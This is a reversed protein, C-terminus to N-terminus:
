IFKVRPHIVFFLFWEEIAILSIGDLYRKSTNSANRVAQLSCLIICGIAIAGGVDTMGVAVNIKPDVASRGAGVGVGVMGPAM